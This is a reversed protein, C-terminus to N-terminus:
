HPKKYQVSDQRKVEDMYALLAEKTDFSKVTADERCINVFGQLHDYEHQFAKSAFGELTKEVRVGELNLYTARIKEVRPVKAVKWVGERLLM